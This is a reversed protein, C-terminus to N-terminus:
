NRKSWPGSPTASDKHTTWLRAYKQDGVTFSLLLQNEEIHDLVYSIRSTSKSPVPSYNKPLEISNGSEKGADFIAYGNERLRKILAKGFPDTSEQGFSFQTTAPPFTLQIKKTVETAITDTVKQPLDKTYDGSAPAKLACANLSLAAVLAFLM